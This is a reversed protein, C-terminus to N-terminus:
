RLTAGQLVAGLKDYTDPALRASNISVQKRLKEIKCAPISVGELELEAAPHTFVMLAKIPVTIDGGLLDQLRDALDRIALDSFVVPDPVRPEVIYRLARGISMSEKWRGDHYEFHGPLNVVELAVVGGPTLLVHDCPLAPYHFIQSKDDFSKLAKDLSDEPRPKRVWRNALYIGIMAIAGGAVTALWSFNATRPAFLPIVVSALLLLLGGVSAYNATAARANVKQRDIWIKM